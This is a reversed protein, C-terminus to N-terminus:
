FNINVAGYINDYYELDISQIDLNTWTYRYGIEVNFKKNFELMMGGQAGYAVGYETDSESYKDGSLVLTADYDIVVAGVHGGVFFLTTLNNTLAFPDTKAEANLVLDYQDTEISAYNTSDLREKEDYNMYHFSAYIRTRQEKVGLRAGWAVETTTDFDGLTDEHYNSEMAGIELGFFPSYPVEDAQVHGACIMTAMISPILIKKMSCKRKIKNEM